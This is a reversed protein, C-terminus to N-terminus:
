RARTRRQSPDTSCGHTDAVAVVRGGEAAPRAEVGEGVGGPIHVQVAGEAVVGKVGKIRTAQISNVVMIVPSALRQNPIDGFAPEPSSISRTLEDTNEDLDVALEIDPTIDVALCQEDRQIEDLLGRSEPGIADLIPLLPKLLITLGVQTGGHSAAPCLLKPHIQSPCDGLQTLRADIGIPVDVDNPSRRGDGHGHDWRTSM